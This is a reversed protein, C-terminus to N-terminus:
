QQANIIRNLDTQFQDFNEYKIAHMGTASAGDCFLERDDVFVCQNSHVQLRQAALEYIEREPKAWGVEGSVIVADFYRATDTASFRKHLSGAGINSLLATKYNKRLQVIYDLLVQNRVENREICRRYEQATMGLLWAIQPRVGNPSITGKNAARVLQKIEAVTAPQALAIDDCMGQLADTILVGFCDFIVARIM